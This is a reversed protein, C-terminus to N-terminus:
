RQLYLSSSSHFVIDHFRQHLTDTNHHDKSIYARNVFFVHKGSVSYVIYYYTHYGSVKATVCIKCRHEKVLKQHKTVYFDAISFLM